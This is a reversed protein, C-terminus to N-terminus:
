ESQDLRELIQAAEELTRLDQGPLARLRRALWATRESRSRNLIREGAATLQLHVVRRDLRDVHRTVLGKSELADVQSSASPSTIGEAEALERLTPNRLHSIAALASIAAPTEAGGTERKIKRVLRMMAVRLRGALVAADTSSSLQNPL